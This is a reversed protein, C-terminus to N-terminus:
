REMADIGAQVCELMLSIKAVVVSVANLDVGEVNALSANGQRDEPYRFVTSNPDVAKFEMLLRTTNRMEDSEVYGPFVEGILDRCSPWLHEFRHEPPITVTLGLFRQCDRMLTKLILELHQRYLFVIPAGLKRAERPSQELHAILLDAARLYGQTYHYWDEETAQRHKTQRVKFLVDAATPFGGEKDDDIQSTM